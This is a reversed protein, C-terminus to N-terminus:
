EDAAGDENNPHDCGKLAEYVFVLAAKQLARDAVTREYSEAGAFDVATARLCIRAFDAMTFPTGDKRSQTRMAKCMLKHDQDLMPQADIEANRLPKAPATVEQEENPTNMM